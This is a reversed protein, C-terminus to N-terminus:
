CLSVGYNIYSSFFLSYKIDFLIHLPAYRFALLCEADIAAEERVLVRRDLSEYQQQLEADKLEPITAM